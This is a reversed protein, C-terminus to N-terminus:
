DLLSITNAYITVEYGNGLLMNEPVSYTITNETVTRNDGNIIIEITFNTSEPGIPEDTANTAFGLELNTVTINESELLITFNGNSLLTENIRSAVQDDTSNTSINVMLGIGAVVPEASPSGNIAFWVYYSYSPTYLLFYTGNLSNNVDANCTIKTKEAISGASVNFEIYENITDFITGNPYRFIYTINAETINYRLTYYNYGVGPEFYRYTKIFDYSTTLNIVDQDIIFNPWTWGGTVNFWTTLTTSDYIELADLYADALRLNATLVIDTNNTFGVSTMYIGSTENYLYNEFFRYLDLSRNYYTMNGTASFLKLCAKMMLANADLTLNKGWPTEIPPLATTWDKRVMFEYANYTENWLYQDLLNYLLTANEIYKSTENMGTQLWYEILTIIGLANVDLRKYLNSGGLLEWSTNVYDYFGLDSHDWMYTILSSMSTNALAYAQYQLTDDLLDTNNIKLSALIAYMNSMSYKNGNSSNTHRFGKNTSDWFISSNILNFLRQISTEHETKYDTSTVINETLLLISEVNDILNRTDDIIEGTTGNISEIFGYEFNTENGAYWLNTKKLGAKYLEFVLDSDVEREFLSDYILINDFSFIRDDTLNGQNNSYRHFVTVNLDKKTKNIFKMMEEFNKTFPDELLSVNVAARPDENISGKDINSSKKYPEEFLYNFFLLNM